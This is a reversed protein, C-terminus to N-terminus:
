NEPPNAFDRKRRILFSFFLNAIVIVFGTIFSMCTCETKHFSFLLLTSFAILFCLEWTVMNWYFKREAEFSIDRNKSRAEKFDWIIYVIMFFIFMLNIWILSPKSPSTAHISRATYTLGTLILIDYFFYLWGFKKTFISYLFDCGYFWVVGIMLLIKDGSLYLIDESSPKLIPKVIWEFLIGGFVAPYILETMLHKPISREIQHEKM